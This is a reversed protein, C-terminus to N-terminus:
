PQIPAEAAAAPQCRAPAYQLPLDVAECSWRGQGDLRWRLRRGDTESLGLVVELGSPRLEVNKVEANPTFPPLDDPTPARGQQRVFAQFQQRLASLEIAHDVESRVRGQREALLYAVAGVLVPLLLALPAQRWAPRGQEALIARAGDTQEDSALPLQVALASVHRYRLLNALLACPLAGVVWALVVALPLSGSVNGQLLRALVVAAFVASAVLGALPLRHLFFWLGQLLGAQWNLRLPLAHGAALRRHVSRMDRGFRNDPLFQLWHRAAPALAALLGRLAPVSRPRQTIDTQLCAEIAAVLEPPTNPALSVLPPLAEGLMRKVADVPRQGTLAFYLVAGVSYLDTWPGMQALDNAYQEPAGYFPSVAHYDGVNVSESRLAAANGFDILVPHERNDILINDPKIDRHLVDAGHVAELGDLLPWLWRLLVAAPLQGHERVRDGLSRGIVQHMVIYGTGNASFHDHVKVVADVQDLAALKRAEELLLQLQLEFNAGQSRHVVAVSLGDRQRNVMGVPFLEKVVVQRQLTQDWCLYAVGFGGPNGIVQRVQFKGALVTGAPLATGLRPDAPRPTAAASSVPFASPPLPQNFARTAENLPPDPPKPEPQSM